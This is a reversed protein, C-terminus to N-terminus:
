PENALEDQNTDGDLPLQAVLEKRHGSGVLEGRTVLEYDGVLQAEEKSEANLTVRMNELPVQRMRYDFRKRKIEITVGSDSRETVDASVVDEDQNVSELFLAIEGPDLGEREEQEIVEEEEAFYKIAVYKSVLSECIISELKAYSDGQGRILYDIYATKEQAEKSTQPDEDAGNFEIPPAAGLFVRALSVKYSEVVQFVDDTM